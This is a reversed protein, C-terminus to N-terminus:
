VPEHRAVFDEASMSTVSGDNARVLWDGVRAVKPGRPSALLIQVDEGVHKVVGNCWAALAGADTDREFHLAAVTEDTVDDVSAGIAV